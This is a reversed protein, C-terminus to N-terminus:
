LTLEVPGSRSSIRLLRAADPVAPAFGTTGHVVKVGGGGGGHYETDIDDEVRIGAWPEFGELMRDSELSEPNQDHTYHVALGDDFLEVALIQVQAGPQPDTTLVRLFRRGEFRPLRMQAEYSEQIRQLDEEQEPSLEATDVAEMSVSMSSYGELLVGDARLLSSTSTGDGTPATLLVRERDEPTAQVPAEAPDPTEAGLTRLIANVRTTLKAEDIEFGEGRRADDILVLGVRLLLVGAEEQRRMQDPDPLFDSSM